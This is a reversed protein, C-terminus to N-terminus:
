VSQPVTTQQPAIVPPIRAISGGRQAQQPVVDELGPTEEEFETPSIGALDILKYFVKRTRPDKLITPNSGLIQLITQLTTLRSATDIQESTIVVDIKYELNDYYGKPIKIDKIGKIQEQVIAKLIDREGKNPVRGSRKIHNIFAKNARRTLILGKLKDLEGEDFEGLMLKHEKKTTNEFSPIIWDFLLEKLFLGLSERKLNFYGGAMQTQLIASGLPTGAPTREGRIVDYAFTRKQINKEITDDSYRYANLNREEVSIPTVESQVILLDGNEVDTMLNSAITQDRTQFIHKSSWRLGARFLNENMNKAIQEEFLKEVQGRGLARGPINDWKLERYFESRERKGSALLFEEDIEEPLIFYNDDTGELPGSYEYVKFREKKGLKELVVGINDWNNKKAEVEFQEPTYEHTEILYESELFNTAGPENAINQLPVSYVRGGVKKLLLHGYKPWTSVLSNLFLGFDMWRGDAYCNKNNKMWLKLEKGFLWSPYYSQGDEAIIKIDKTDLDIMKTSVEVPNDVVNYFTKKFGTTDIDNDKFKSVWYLDILDIVDKQTKAFSPNNDLGTKEFDQILDEIVGKLSDM